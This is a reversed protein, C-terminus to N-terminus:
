DIYYSYQGNSNRLYYGLGGLNETTYGGSGVSDIILFNSASLKSVDTVNVYGVVAVYHCGTSRKGDGDDVNIVVPKGNKLNEYVTKYVTAQSNSTKKTYSAKSCVATYSYRKKASLYGESYETWSHSVDDIIDRSYALAYCLCNKEGSGQKGTTKILSWDIALTKSESSDSKTSFTKKGDTLVTKMKKITAPGFSGDPSLGVASQFKKTTEKSAPGFSGDVTLKTASLGENKICENLAAQMWKIENKTTSSSKVVQSGNWYAYDGSNEAVNYGFTPVETAAYATLGIASASFITIISVVLAIMKRLTYMIFTGRTFMKLIYNDEGIFVAMEIKQVTIGAMVVTAVFEEMVIKITGILMFVHLVTILFKLIVM